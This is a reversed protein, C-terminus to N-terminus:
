QRPKWVWQTGDWVQVMNPDRQWPIGFPKELFNAIPEAVSIPITSGGITPMPTPSYQALVKARQTVAKDAAQTLTPPEEMVTAALKRAKQAAPSQNQETRFQMYPSAASRTGLPKGNVATVSAGNAMRPGAIQAMTRQKMATETGPLAYIDYGAENPAIGYDSGMLATPSIGGHYANINQNILNRGFTDNIIGQNNIQQNLMNDQVQAEKRGLNFNIIANKQREPEGQQQWALANQQTQPVLNQENWVRNQLQLPALQQLENINNQLSLKTNIGQLPMLEINQNARRGAEITQANETAASLAPTEFLNAMNAKVNRGTAEAVDGSALQQPGGGLMFQASRVQNAFQSPDGFGAMQNAVYEEPHAYVSKLTPSNNWISTLENEKNELGAQYQQNFADLQMTILAKRAQQEQWFPDNWTALDVGHRKANKRAMGLNFGTMFDM